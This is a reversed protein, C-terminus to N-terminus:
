LYVMGAASLALGTTQLRVVPRGSTGGHRTLAHPVGGSCRPLAWTLSTRPSCSAVSARPMPVGTSASQRARGSVLQVAPGASRPQYCAGDSRRSNPLQGLGGLATDHMQQRAGPRGGKAAGSSVSGDISNLFAGQQTANDWNTQTSSTAAETDNQSSRDTVASQASKTSKDPSEQFLISFASALDGFIEAPQGRSADTQKQASNKLWDKLNSSATDVTNSQSGHGTFASQASKVSKDRTDQYITSDFRPLLVEIPQERSADHLQRMFVKDWGRSYKRNTVFREGFFGLFRSVVETPLFEAADNTQALLDDIVKPLSDIDRLRRGDVCIESAQLWSVAHHLYIQPQNAPSSYLGRAMIKELDNLAYELPSPDGSEMYSQLARYLFTPMALVETFGNIKKSLSTFLEGPAHLEGDSLECILRM